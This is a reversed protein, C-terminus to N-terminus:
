PRRTKIIADLLSWLLDERIHAEMSVNGAKNFDKLTFLRGKKTVLGHCFSNRIHRLLHHAKDNTEASKPKNAEYVFKFQKKPRKGFAIDNDDCFRRVAPDDLSFSGFIHKFQAEYLCVFKYFECIDEKSLNNINKARPM